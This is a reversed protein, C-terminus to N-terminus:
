GLSAVDWGHGVVDPIWGCHFPEWHNYAVELDIKFQSPFSSTSSCVAQVAKRFQVSVVNFTDTDGGRFATSAQWFLNQARRYDGQRDNTDDFNTLLL